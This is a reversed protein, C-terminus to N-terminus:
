TSLIVNKLFRQQLSPHDTKDSTIDLKSPFPRSPLIKTIVFPEMGSGNEVNVLILTFEMSEDHM